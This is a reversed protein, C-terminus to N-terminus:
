RKYEKRLMIERIQDYTLKTLTDGDILRHNIYINMDIASVSDIEKRKVMETLDEKYTLHNFNKEGVNNDCSTLNLLM